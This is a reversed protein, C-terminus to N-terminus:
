DEVTVTIVYTAGCDVPNPLISVATINPVDTNLVVMKTVTSTKGAGDTAVIVITNDGETLTVGKTFAGNEGVTVQEATGDNVKVTVTVPTSTADNTVGTVTVESQNTVLNDAPASINLTPPVTDVTFTIITETADNDDNDSAGFKVTQIGDALSAPSCSCSIGNGNALNTKTIGTTIKTGSVVIYISESDVGSGTDEVTWTITPTANTLIAGTSPYTVACVPAVKELVRIQLAEGVTADTRDVTVVNGAVDTGVLTVGFKHDEEHYSSTSPAVVTAEYKGSTANYTLNYNQGNITAVLSSLQAM